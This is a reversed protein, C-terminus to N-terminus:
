FTAKLAFTIQRGTGPVSSSGGVTSTIAGANLNRQGVTGDPNVSGNAFVYPNPLAFNAHNLANAIEARFQLKFQESIKPITAEKLFAFALNRFAPGVTTMRGLNGLTGVPQLLFANPDYWHQITGLIPDPSYGPALIPRDTGNSNGGIGSRNFGTYINFPAGTQQSWIGTLKWGKAFMNKGLPLEYVGNIKLVHTRDFSSRGRDLNFNYPDMADRNSGVADAQSFNSGYDLSKSYSYSIQSSFHSALRRNLSVQLANYHSNGWTDRLVINGFGPNIATNPTTNGNAALTGFAGNIMQPPNYNSSGILHVGRSGVYAVQLIMGKYLDRQINLNYQMARPTSRYGQGWLIGSQQIPLAAGTPGTLAPFTPNNIQTTVFPYTNWYAPLFIHGTMVDYFVGFGGRISTKHDAFPDYAFGFRPAWNKDTPNNSFVTPTPTFATATMLGVVNYLNNRRETPNRAWEYRLGINLTLKRTIKWEDHVYPTIMSELVDRNGYSLGPAFSAWKSPLGQMFTLVTNFQLQGGNNSSNITFDQTYTAGVGFKVNHSGHTWIVDDMAQYADQTVNYPIAGNIGIKTQNVNLVADVPASPILHLAPINATDSSGTEQPRLFSVRALNVMTASLIHREEVTAYYNATSLLQQYLPIQSPTRRYALDTVTRLFITDKASVTYDLRGLTYNDHNVTPSATAWNGAGSPDTAGVPFLAMLPAIGPAFGVFALGTASNCQYTPAIKCPLYGNHANIDPVNTVINGAAGGQRLAEYNVFFFMKDKKIPGGISGGVNLTRSKPVEATTAGPAVYYDFFSRAFLASNALFGYASGHFSNTGSKSVANVVVGNGGYQASYTNLLVQYQSLSEIGLSAGTAGSGASKGQFTAMSTSDILFGLGTPRSGSVTYSTQGGYFVGGGGADMIGAVGPALNMLDVFNRTTGLPLDDMQNTDVTFGIASTSTDVQSVQADVTVVVSAQGIPLAVDVIAEAGVTTFIGKRLVTQFGARSVEVEYDGILLNSASYRGEADSTLSVVVGTGINKVDVKAGAVVAGSTDAVTGSITSTSNQAFGQIGLVLLLIALLHMQLARNKM